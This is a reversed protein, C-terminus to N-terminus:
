EQFDASTEIGSLHQNTPTVFILPRAFRAENYLLLNGYPLYLRNAICHLIAKLAPTGIEEVITNIYFITVGPPTMHCGNVMFDFFKGFFHFADFLLDVDNHSM